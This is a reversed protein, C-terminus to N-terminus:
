VKIMIHVDAEPACCSANCLFGLMEDPEQNNYPQVELSEHDTVPIVM